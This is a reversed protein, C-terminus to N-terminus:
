LLTHRQCWDARSGQHLPFLLDAMGVKFKAETKRHKDKNTDNNRTCGCSPLVLRIRLYRLSAQLQLWPARVKGKRRPYKQATHIFTYIHVYM